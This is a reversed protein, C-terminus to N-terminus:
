APPARLDQELPSLLLDEVDSPAVVECRVQPWLVIPPAGILKPPLTVQHLDDCLHPTVGCNHAECSARPLCERHGCTRGLYRDDESCLFIDAGLNIQGCGGKLRRGALALLPLDVDTSVTVLM